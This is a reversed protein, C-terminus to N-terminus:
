SEESRLGKLSKRSKNKGLRKVGLPFSVESDRQSFAEKESVLAM